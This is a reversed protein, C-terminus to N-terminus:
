FSELIATEEHYEDNIKIIPLKRIGNLIMENRAIIDTSVNKETFVIKKEKLLSKIIEGSIYNSTYIIVDKEM